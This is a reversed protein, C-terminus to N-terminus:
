PLCEAYEKWAIEYLKDFSKPSYCLLNIVDREALKIPSTVMFEPIRVGTNQLNEYYTAIKAQLITTKHMQKYLEFEKELTIEKM